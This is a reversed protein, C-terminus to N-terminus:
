PSAKCTFSDLLLNFILVPLYLLPDQYFYAFTHFILLCSFGMYLVQSVKFSVFIQIKFISLPLTHCLHSKWLVWLWNGAGMHCSVGTQLDTEPSRVWGYMCALCQHVCFLFFNFVYILSFFGLDIIYALDELINYPFNKVFSFCVWWICSVGLVSGFSVLSSVRWLM